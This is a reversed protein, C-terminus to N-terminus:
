HGLLCDNLTERRKQKNTSCSKAIQANKQRGPQEILVEKDNTQIKQKNLPWGEAQQAHKHEKPKEIPVRKANTETKALKSLVM